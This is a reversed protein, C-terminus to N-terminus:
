NESNISSFLAMVSKRTPRFLVDFDSIVWPEEEGDIGELGKSLHM